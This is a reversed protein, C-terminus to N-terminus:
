KLEEENCRCDGCEICFGCVNCCEHKGFKDNPEGYTEHMSKM